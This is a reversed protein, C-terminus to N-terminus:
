ITPSRCASAHRRRRDDRDQVAAGLEFGYLDPLREVSFSMHNGLFYPDTFSGNISQEDLGGGVSSTCRSAAASSTRRTWRCKPSWAPRGATTEVGGAVGFSGTSKDEVNVVVVVKDPASGPETTITVTKFYGLDRLKREAKDILVRNYADGESVDFERRIVYDRTKTNGRIDIREIYVRQGEDIVYTLNIPTTATTATAARVCRPSCM